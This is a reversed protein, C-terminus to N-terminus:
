VLQGIADMIRPWVASKPDILEYHGSNSLELFKINEGKAKKQKAYDRSMEVPVTDDQGGHIVLQKCHIDLEAPSAEHYHEPVRDPPGGLFEAAADHSLHLEWARRLNVVGALSVAAIM